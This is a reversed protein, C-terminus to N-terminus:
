SAPASRVGRQWRRKGQGSPWTRQLSELCVHAAATQQLEAAHCSLVVARMATALDPVVGPLEMLLRLAHLAAFREAEFQVRHAGSLIQAHEM